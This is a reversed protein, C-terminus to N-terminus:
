KGIIAKDFRSDMCASIDTTVFKGEYFLSFITAPTPAAQAQEMTELKIITLPLNRKAAAFSGGINCELYPTLKRPQTIFFQVNAYLPVLVKEYVSLGSGAGITFRQNIHYHAIVQGIFPTCSPQSM